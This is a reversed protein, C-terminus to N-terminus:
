EDTPDTSMDGDKLASDDGHNLSDDPFPDDDEADADDTVPKHQYQALSMLKHSTFDARHTGLDLKLGYRAARSALMAMNARIKMDAQASALVHSRMAARSTATSASGAKGSARLQKKNNSNSGGHSNTNTNSDSNGNGNSTCLACGAFLALYLALHRFAM